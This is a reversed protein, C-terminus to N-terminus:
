TSVEQAATRSLRDFHVLWRLFSLFASFYLVGLEEPMHDEEESAKAHRYNHAGDILAAFAKLSSTAARLPEGSGYHRNLVPSLKDSLASAKLQNTGSFMLRFLCECADFAGRVATRWKPDSPALANLADSLHASVATYRPDHGIMDLTRSINDAFEEDVQDHIGGDEDIFYAANQERFITEVMSIYTEAISEKEEKIIDYLLTIVDLLEEIKCYTIWHEMPRNSSLYIDIDIGLERRAQIGVVEYAYDVGRNWRTRLQIATM